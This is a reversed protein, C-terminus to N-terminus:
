GHYLRLIGKVVADYSYKGSALPFKHAMESRTRGQSRDKGWWWDTILSVSVSLSPSVAQRSFQPAKDCSCVTIM